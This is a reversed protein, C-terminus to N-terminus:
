TPSLHVKLMKTIEDETPEFGLAKIAVGLEAADITGPPGPCCILLLRSASHPQPATCDNRLSTPTPQSRPASSGVLPACLPDLTCNCSSPAYPSLAQSRHLQRSLRQGRRISRVATTLM